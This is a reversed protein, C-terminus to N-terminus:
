FARELRDLDRVMLEAGDYELDRLRRFAAEMDGQYATASEELRLEVTAVVHGIKIASM